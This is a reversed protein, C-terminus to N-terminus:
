TVLLAHFSQVCFTYVPCPLQLLPDGTISYKELFSAYSITAPCIPIKQQIRRNWCFMFKKWGFRAARLKFNAARQLTCCKLTGYTCGSGHYHKKSLLLKLFLYMKIHKVTWIDCLGAVAFVLDAVLFEAILDAVRQDAARSILRQGFHEACDAEENMGSKSNDMCSSKEWLNRPMSYTLKRFKKASKVRM